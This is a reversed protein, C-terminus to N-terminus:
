MLDDGQHGPALITQIPRPKLHASIARSIFVSQEIIMEADELPVVQGFHEQKMKKTAMNRFFRYVLPMNKKTMQFTDFNKKFRDSITNLFDKVFQERNNQAYLEQSYNQMVEYWKKGEGHKTCFECM